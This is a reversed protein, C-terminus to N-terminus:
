VAEGEIRASRDVPLFAGEHVRLDFRRPTRRHAVGVGADIAILRARLFELDVDRVAEGVRVAVNPITPALIVDIVAGPGVGVVSRKEGSMEIIRVLVRMRRLDVLLARPGTRAHFDEATASEGFLILAVQEHGIDNSELANQLVLRLVRARAQGRGFHFRDEGRGIRIEARGIDFDPRVAGNVKEVPLIREDAVHLVVEAVGAAVRRM